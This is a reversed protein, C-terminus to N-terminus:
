APPIACVMLVLELNDYRSTTISLEIADHKLALQFATDSLVGSESAKMPQDCTHSAIGRLPQLCSVCAVLTQLCCTLLVVYGLFLILEDLSYNLQNFRCGRRFCNVGFQFM